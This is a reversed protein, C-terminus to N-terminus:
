RSDVLLNEIKQITETASAPKLRVKNSFVFVPNKAKLGMLHHLVHSTWSDDPGNQTLNLINGILVM